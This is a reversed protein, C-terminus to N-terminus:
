SVLASSYRRNRDYALQQNHQNIDAENFSFATNVMGGPSRPSRGSSLNDEKEFQVFFHEIQLGFHTGRQM